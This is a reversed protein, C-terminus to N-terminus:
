KQKAKDSFENLKKLYDAEKLYGGIRGIEKEDANIVVTTPFGNARFKQSLQENQEQLEKSMGKKNRPFDLYVLVYKPPIERQFKKGTLVNDKLRICWPCWDSGTFLMLIPLKKEEAQKKAAEFDDLWGKPTAAPLALGCLILAAALLNKLQKM